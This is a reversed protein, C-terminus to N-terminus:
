TILYEGLVSELNCNGKHSDEEKNLCETTLRKPQKVSQKIILLAALFAGTEVDNGM